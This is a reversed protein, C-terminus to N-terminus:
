CLTFCGFYRLSFIAIIVGEQAHDDFIIDLHFHSTGQERCGRGFSGATTGLFHGWFFANTLTIMWHSDLFLTLYKTTRHM